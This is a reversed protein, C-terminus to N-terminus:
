KAKLTVTTTEGGRLEVAVHDTEQNASGPNPRGFFVYKGAPVNQFDYDNSEPLTASGGYSGVVNGGEPQMEVLYDAPRQSKSFDVVVHATAAPQMTLTVNEAPVDIMEGLGPRVYGSKHVWVSTRGRPVEHFAFRGDAGTTVTLENSSRYVEGEGIVAEDLRVQVGQLPSGQGDLVVGTVDAAQALKTPLAAWRPTGDLQQFGAIRPVFTPAEVVIRFWGDPVRTLVWRGDRDTPANTVRTYEYKGEKTEIRELHATAPIPKLTEAEVVTGELVVGDALAFGHAELREDVVDIGEPVSVEAWKVNGGVYLDIVPAPVGTDPGQNPRFREPLSKLRKWSDADWVTFSWEIKAQERKDPENNINLWFSQGIGDHVILKRAAAEIKAFDALVRNFADTDGRCEAHSEGGGYPPGEWYAIRSKANFVEAAGPPWRSGDMPENGEGGTILAQALRTGCLVAFCLALAGLWNQRRITRIPM